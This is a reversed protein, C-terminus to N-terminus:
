AVVGSDRFDTIDARSYGLEELVEDTHQGLTPAVM